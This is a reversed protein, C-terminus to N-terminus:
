TRGFVLQPSALLKAPDLLGPYTHPVIQRAHASTWLKILPWLLLYLPWLVKKKMRDIRFAHFAAGHHGMLYTLHLPTLPSLHGRDIRQGHTQRVGAPSFQYFTGTFLFTLRSWLNCINPMSIVILGGPQTIRVLEGLLYAPNVIHEVGELCTVLDFEHTHFPLPHEMDAPVFGERGCIDARVVQHGLSELHQAFIGSGAPIDLAYVRRQGFASQLFGIVEAM